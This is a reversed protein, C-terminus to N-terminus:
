VRLKDRGGKATRFVNMGIYYNEYLYDLTKLDEEALNIEQDSANPDNKLRILRQEVEERQNKIEREYSSVGAFEPSLIHQPNYEPTQDLPIQVQRSIQEEETQSLVPTLPARENKEQWFEPEGMERRFIREAGRKNTLGRGADAIVVEAAAAKYEEEAADEVAKKAAKSRELAARAEAEAKAATDAATLASKSAKVAEAISTPKTDAAEVAAETAKVVAESASILEREAKEKSEIKPTEKKVEKKPAKARPKNKAGKPRVKKKKPKKESARAM